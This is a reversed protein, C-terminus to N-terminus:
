RTADVKPGPLNVGADRAILIFNLLFLINPSGYLIMAEMRTPEAMMRATIKAM